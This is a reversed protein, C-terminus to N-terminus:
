QLLKYYHQKEYPTLSSLNTTLKPLHILLTFFLQFDIALQTVWTDSSFGINNEMLPRSLPTSHVRLLNMSSKSLPSMPQSVMCGDAPVKVPHLPPCVPVEHLEVPLASDQLQPPAVLQQFVARCFCAQPNQHVSSASACLQGSFCHPIRPSESLWRPMTM